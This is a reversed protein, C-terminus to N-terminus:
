LVTMCLSYWPIKVLGGWIVKGWMKSYFRQKSNRSNRRNGGWKKKMLVKWAGQLLYLIPGSFGGWMNNKQKLCFERKPSKKEWVPVGELPVHLKLLSQHGEKFLILAEISNNKFKKKKHDGWKKANRGGAFIGWFPVHLILPWGEFCTWSVCSGLRYYSIEETEIRGLVLWTVM